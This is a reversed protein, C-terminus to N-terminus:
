WGTCISVLLADSYTFLIWLPLIFIYSKYMNAISMAKNNAEPM